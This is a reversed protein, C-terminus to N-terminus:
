HTFGNFEDVGKFRQSFLSNNETLPLSELYEIRYQKTTCEWRVQDDELEKMRLHDLLLATQSYQIRGLFKSNCM